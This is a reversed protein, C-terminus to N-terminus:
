AGAAGALVEDVLGAIALGEEQALLLARGPSGEALTM